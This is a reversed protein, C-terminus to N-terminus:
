DLKVGTDRAVKGWKDSETRIFRALTEPDGGTLTVGSAAFRQVVDPRKLTANTAANLRAVIDPPTGAAAVIAFWAVAEFGKVTEALAPISPMAPVRSENAVGLARMRGAEVFPLTSPSNDFMVQVAGGMLDNAAPASGRYPIHVLSIGAQNKLLEMTLHSTTGNGQSGYSLKGPNAKAHAIFEALTKYPQAPHTVLMIPVSALLSIPALDKLPDFGLRQYIHPNISLPGATTVLLTYGDPRSRAVAETGLNGGAGARNEVVVSQKLERGIGEAVARALIDTTGGPPFPVVVTIPREPFTQAAAGLTTALLAAGACLNLIKFFRNLRM